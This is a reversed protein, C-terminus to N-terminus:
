VTDERQSIFYFKWIMKSSYQVFHEVVVLWIGQSGHDTAWSIKGDRWYARYNRLTIKRWNNRQFIITNWQMKQLNFFLFQNYKTYAYKTRSINIIKRIDQCPAREGANLWIGMDLILYWCKLFDSQFYFINTKTHSTQGKRFEGDICFIAKCIHSCWLHVNPWMVLDGKSWNYCTDVMGKRFDLIEEDCLAIRTRATQCEPDSVWM